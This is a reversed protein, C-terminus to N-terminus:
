LLWDRSRGPADIGRSADWMAAQRSFRACSARACAPSRSRVGTTCTFAVTAIAPRAARPPM